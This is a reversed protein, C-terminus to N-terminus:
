WGIPGAWYSDAARAGRFAQPEPSRGVTARVTTTTAAVVSWPIAPDEVQPAARARPQVGAGGRGGAPDEGSNGERTRKGWVYEGRFYTWGLEAAVTTIPEKGLFNTWVVMPAGPELCQVGAKM